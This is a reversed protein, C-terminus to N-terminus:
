ADLEAAERLLQEYDEKKQREKREKEERKEEEDKL